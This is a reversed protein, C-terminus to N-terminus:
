RLSGVQDLNAWQDHRAGRELELEAPLALQTDWRLEIRGGEPPQQRHQLMSSGPPTRMKTQVAGTPQAVTEIPERLRRTLADACIWHATARQEYPAWARASKLVAPRKPQIALAAADQVHCAGGAVSRRREHGGVPGALGEHQAKRQREGFLQAAAAHVREHQAGPGDRGAKLSRGVHRLAGHHKALKSACV